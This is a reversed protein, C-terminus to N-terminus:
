LATAGVRHILSRRELSGPARDAGERERRISEETREISNELILDIQLDSYWEVYCDAYCVTSPSHDVINSSRDISNSSISLVTLLFSDICYYTAPELQYPLLSISVKTVPVWYSFNFHLVTEASALGKYTYGCAGDDCLSSNFALSSYSTFPQGWQDFLDYHVAMVKTYLVVGGPQFSISASTLNRPFFRASVRMLGSNVSTIFSSNTVLCYTTINSTSPQMFAPSPGDFSISGSDSNVISTQLFNGGQIVINKKTDFSCSGPLLYINIFSINSLPPASVSSLSSSMSSSSSRSPSPSHSVTDMHRDLSDNSNLEIALTLNFGSTQPRISIEFYSTKGNFALTFDSDIENLSLPTFELSCNSSVNWEAYDGLVKSTSDDCVIAELQYDLTTTNHLTLTSNSLEIAVRASSSHPLLMYSSISTSPLHSMSMISNYIGISSDQSEIFSDRVIAQDIELLPSSLIVLNSELILSNEIISLTATNLKITCNAIECGSLQNWEHKEHSNSHMDIAANVITSNTARLRGNGYFQLRGPKIHDSQHNKHGVTLITGDLWLSGGEEVEFTMGVSASMLFESNRLTVAGTHQIM